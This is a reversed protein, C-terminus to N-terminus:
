LHKKQIHAHTHKTIQYWTNKICIMRGYKYKKFIELRISTIQIKNGLLRHSQPVIGPPTMGFGLCHYKIGEQKVSLM